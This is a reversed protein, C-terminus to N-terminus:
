YEVSIDYKRNLENRYLLEMDSILRGKSYKRSVFKRGERGMRARKDEDSLLELLNKSYAAADESPSLLGTENHTVIDRVGGVDTSIVAKGSAMAEILSIPTGENLSTICVIDLAEYVASLDTRWGTFVVSRDIGLKRAYSELEGRLSGDGVILFKVKIGPWAVKAMKAAELFMRHNKISVLRGIIGVLLTSRGLSLEQRLDAKRGPKLFPELNLGLPILHHKGERGVKYKDKIEKLQEPSIVVIRDTLKALKKEIGLFLATKLRGFYSHFVHGHFTHIKVPVNNLRAALRCLTGAKATHTHVIDPKLRRIIWYLKIFARLDNILSIERKLEPIVVPEVGERRADEIMDRENGSVTGTVLHSKFRTEDLGSNLLIAHTAPGGTNLRAIIRLVKIRKDQGSNSM